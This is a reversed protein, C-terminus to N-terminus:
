KTKGTSQANLNNHSGQLIVDLVLVHLPVVCVGVDGHPVGHVGEGGVLEDGASHHCCNHNEQSGKRLSRKGLYKIVNLLLKNLKINMNLRQDEKGEFNWNRPKQM